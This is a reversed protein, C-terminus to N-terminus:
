FFEINIFIILLNNQTETLNIRIVAQIVVYYYNQSLFTTTYEITWTIPHNGVIPSGRTGKCDESITKEPQQFKTCRRGAKM